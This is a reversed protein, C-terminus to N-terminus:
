KGEIEREEERHNIEDQFTKAVLNEAKANAEKQKATLNKRCRNATRQARASDLLEQDTYDKLAERNM